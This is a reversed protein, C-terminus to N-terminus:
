SCYVRRIRDNENVDVNLRDARYDMTVAMGPRIVRIRDHGVAARIAAMTQADAPRGIYAGLKGAGCQDEPGGPPHVPKPMPTACASLLMFAAAAALPPLAGKM